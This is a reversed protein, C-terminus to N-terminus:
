RSATGSGHARLADARQMLACAAEICGSLRQAPGIGAQARARMPVELGVIRDSPLALLWDLLPLEGEGPALRDFRAEDAYSAHGSILPVDCLQIYGMRDPDLVALQALESGSRFFHMADILVRFNPKGVQRIFTMTSELDGIMMGPMFELTADLNRAGALEAFAACQDLARGRDSEICVINVQTAGLECMLDLDPGADRIEKQPRVLFGEGLSISVGHARLAAITDRRMGADTRLSWMPYEPSHVIPELAIGIHRCQLGAALKVFEVPPMGLVSIFEIAIRNRYQSVAQEELAPHPITQIGAPCM